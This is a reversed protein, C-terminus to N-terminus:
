FLQNESYTRDGRDVGIRNLFKNRLFIKLYFVWSFIAVSGLDVKVQRM